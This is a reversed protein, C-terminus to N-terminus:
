RSRWYGPERKEHMVAVVEILEERRRYILCYPFRRLLRRRTGAEFQPWADPLRTIAQVAHDLDAMFAEAAAPDRDAYWRRAAQAERVAEPHFRLLM